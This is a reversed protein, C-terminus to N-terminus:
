FIVASMPRAQRNDKKKIQSNKFECYNGYYFVYACHTRRYNDYTVTLHKRINM